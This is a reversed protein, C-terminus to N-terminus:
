ILGLVEDDTLNRALLCGLLWNGDPMLTAHKVTAALVGSFRAGRSRLRLALLTGPKCPQDVLLGIGLESIDRVVAPFAQLGPRALVRVITKRQCIYREMSRREEADLKASPQTSGFINGESM